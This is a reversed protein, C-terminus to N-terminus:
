KIIALGLKVALIGLVISAAMYLIALANWQNRLLHINEFAFASFTTFGGCLGTALLLSLTTTSTSSSKEIYGMILGMVFCGIINVTFTGWPFKTQPGRQIFSGIWFRLVGGAASGVIVLLSNKVNIM